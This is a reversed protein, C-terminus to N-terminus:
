KKHTARMTSALEKIEGIDKNMEEWGYWYAYDPNVHFFAQYTRMRHKMYMQCLVQDIYSLKNFDKTGEAGGTHMFTLLFPYNFPYDKPKQILGDKYLAAVTEIADAMLRDAKQMIADGMDLQTKAYTGSHCKSCTKIMKDREAQWAEQTLRVMDVSKVAEFIPTTKGTEPDLVGLAKLITVRDAAWQKDEPLPLRVGLFGWATRNEHTGNLLHCQQCTPATADKPLNGAQKAHWRTGHKASSWMEWQPHDYGMHCQQCARPDMAEKKSFTHRTHCEDCSNNQYRYGKDRQEKKQAESKIGMNHCGGCGRGGEILEDPALHAAPLANLSTWGFNHKGKAFEKFQKEHCEGCVHEDPLVVLNVDKESKHKDGHCASCAVGEKSHRSIKWDSVQGPSIKQHCTICAEDMAKPSAKEKALSPTSLSALVFLGSCAFLLTRKM